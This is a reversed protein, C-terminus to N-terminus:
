VVRGGLIRKVDALKETFARRLWPRPAIHLTGLELDRGYKVNTGVRGVMDVVEHTVSGRLRGTQKHPPEGPKSPFAGYIRKGKHGKPTPILRGKHMVGTGPVSILVKAHNQIVICAARLRRIFAQKVAEMAQKSHDRYVTAM